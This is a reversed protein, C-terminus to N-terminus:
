YKHVVPLPKKGSEAVCIDYAATMATQIVPVFERNIDKQLTDIEKKSTNAFDKFVDEYVQLQQQLMHLGPLIAGTKQVRLEIDRHFARLLNHASRPLGALVAPTRRSFTRDWGSAIVKIMPDALATNWDHPGQGNSYVGYRRCVAKYSSWHYGGAARNERNVPRGWDSCTKTAESVANSIAMEYKDFINDGLEEKLDNIVNSVLKELGQVPSNATAREIFRALLFSRWERPSLGHTHFDSLYLAFSIPHDQRLFTVPQM